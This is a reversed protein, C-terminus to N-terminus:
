CPSLMNPRVTLYCSQIYFFTCSTRPLVLEEVEMVNSLLNFLKFFDCFELYMQETSTV